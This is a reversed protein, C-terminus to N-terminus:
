KLLQAVIASKKVKKIQISENIVDQVFRVKNQLTEQEKQLKALQHAKRTEYLKERLTFWEKVIDQESKYKHIQGKSDFLVYNSASLSNQLRFFKVIGETKEIERLTPVQLVFHM